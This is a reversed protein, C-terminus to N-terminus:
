RMIRKHPMRPLKRLFIKWNVLNEKLQTENVLEDMWLSNKFEM